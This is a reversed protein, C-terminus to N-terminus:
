CRRRRRAAADGGGVAAVAYRRGIERWSRMKRRRRGDCRGAVNREHGRRASRELRLLLLLLLMLLLLLLDAIWELLCGTREQGRTREGRGRRVRKRDGLMRVCYAVWLMMKLLLLLPMMLMLLLLLHVALCLKRLWM